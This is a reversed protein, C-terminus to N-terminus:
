SGATAGSGRLLETMMRSRERTNRPAATDDALPRFLELADAARGDRWAALGLAERAAHRLPNTDVTLAEVRRAVDEYSGSDVLLLAARLRAMDRIAVPVSRDDAVADFNSVAQGADGRAAHVTAARLKALVPYSGYGGDELAKLAALAEDHKDANALELAQSFADGAASSRTEVWYQYGVVGATALVILVAGGVIYAGFRDWLSRFQDQRIEEDVERFFSDDSM